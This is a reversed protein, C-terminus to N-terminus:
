GITFEVSVTASITLQGPEIPVTGERAPASVPMPLPGGYGGGETVRHVGRITVGLADAIVQAKARASGAALALAQNRLSDLNKIGFQIGSTTNAGASIAGDLAWVAKSLDNITVSINNSAQYGVVTPPDGFYRPYLSIGTTQIDTDPIGVAKVAQIVKAMVVGNSTMAELATRGETQVGLQVSAMDPPAVVRGEGAVAISPVSSGESAAVALSSGGNSAVGELALLIGSVMIVAMAVVYPRIIRM